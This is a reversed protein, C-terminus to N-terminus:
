KQATGNDLTQQNIVPTQIQSSQNGPTQAPQRSQQVDSQNSQPVQVEAANQRLRQERLEAERQVILKHAYMAAQHAQHTARIQTEAQAKLIAQSQDAILKENSSLRIPQRKQIRQGQKVQNVQQGQQGQQSSLKVTKIPSKKDTCHGKVCHIRKNAALKKKAQQKNKALRYQEAREKEVALRYENLSALGDYMRKHVAESHQQLKLKEAAALRTDKLFVDRQNQTIFRDFVESQIDETDALQLTGSVVGEAILNILGSEIAETVAIHQPENVSFGAEAELIEDSDVFSFIGGDLKRSFIRKTSVVNHLILGDDIDILRMSITVRDERYATSASVGLIGFGAGGTQTNSDYSVISGEIMVEAPKVSPLTIEDSGSDAISSQLIKRETLLNQLNAREVPAFWKSSLLANILIADAGQTVATSLANSPQPRYQGTYDRFSYVAARLIGRPKPLSTLEDNTKTRAPVSARSKLVDKTPQSMVTTCGSVLILLAFLTPFYVGTYLNNKKLRLM